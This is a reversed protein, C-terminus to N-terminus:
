TSPEIGEPTFRDLAAAAAPEHSLVMGDRYGAGATGSRRQPLRDDPEAPSGITALRAHGCHSSTLLSLLGCLLLQRADSSRAMEANM